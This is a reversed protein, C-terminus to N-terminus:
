ISGSVRVSVKAVINVIRGAVRGNKLNIGDWLNLRTRKGFHAPKVSIALDGFRMTIDAGEREWQRFFSVQEPTLHQQFNFDFEANPAIKNPPDVLVPPDLDFGHNGTGNLTYGLKVHGSTALFLM